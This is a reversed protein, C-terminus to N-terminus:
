CNLEERIEDELVNAEDISSPSGMDAIDYLVDSRRGVLDAAPRRGEELLFAESAAMRRALGRFRPLAEEPGLGEAVIEHVLEDLRDLDECVTSAIGEPRSSLLESCSASLAVLGATVVLLLHRRAALPRNRAETASRRGRPGATGREVTSCTSYISSSLGFLPISM